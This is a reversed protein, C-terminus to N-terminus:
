VVTVSAGFRMGGNSSDMQKLDKIRSLSVLHAPSLIKKKMNVILDTGGALPKAEQGLEAMVQCAEEITEPEHFDFRPLLM